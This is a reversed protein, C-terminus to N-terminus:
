EDDAKERRRDGILDVFEGGPLAAPPLGEVEFKYTPANAFAEADIQGAGEVLQRVALAICDGCIAVSPGELLFRVDGRTQGCFSCHAEAM